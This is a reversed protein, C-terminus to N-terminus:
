VPLKPKFGPVQLWVLDESAESIGVGFGSQLAAAVERENGVERRWDTIWDLRTGWEEGVKCYLYLALVYEFEWDQRM